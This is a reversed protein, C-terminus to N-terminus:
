RYDAHFQGESILPDPIFKVHTFFRAIMKRNKARYGIAVNYDAPHVRISIEAGQKGGLFSSWTDNWIETMVLERFSPHFPGAVLDDRNLIGESPHLGVRIIRIKSQQFVRIVEKTQDVAEELSLPHYRGERYLNELETGRIVLVPYIRTDEAGLEIIRSATMVSKGPTDGPLGIMMQLGLRINYDRIIKAARSTDGATHGRRSMTLVGEDMSQAGLEITTVGFKKLLDLGEGSIFDPRTSVRIGHVRDNRVYQRALSLYREQLVPSLGTFTGGFFGIEVHANERSITKLHADIISSVEVPSPFEGHGTIKEQDCFICAFPCAVGPIFVPITYHRDKM